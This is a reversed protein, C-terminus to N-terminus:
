ATVAKKVIEVGARRLFEDPSEGGMLVFVYGARVEHLSGSQDLVVTNAGISQFITKFIRLIHGEAITQDLLERKRALARAFDAGRHVLTVRHRGGKALGLAAEIAGDGGREISVLKENTHLRVGTTSIITEWVDLLSEKSGDAIYLNGYLPMQLPEAMLFKHRPYNRITSAVEGQELTLDKLYGRTFFMTLVFAIAFALLTHM